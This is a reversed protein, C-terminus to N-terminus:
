IKKLLKFNGALFIKGDMTARLGHGPIEEVDTMSIGTKPEGAYEHIATAIPHTSQSEILNLYDVIQNKDFSKEIQIRQIKFVGETLTGTKDVIVQQTKALIDLFNGGKFLIGNKSGAGIGGFYGLPISIVLACPCSIVLFILARYLWHKLEYNEM